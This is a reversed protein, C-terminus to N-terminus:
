SAHRRREFGDDPGSEGASQQSGVGLRCCQRIFARITDFMVFYTKETCFKRSSSYLSRHPSISGLEASM